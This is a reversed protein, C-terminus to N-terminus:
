SGLLTLGFPTRLLSTLFSIYSDVTHLEGKPMGTPNLTCSRSGYLPHRVPGGHTVLVITESPRQPSATSSLSNDGMHTDSWTLRTRHPHLSSPSIYRSVFSPSPM